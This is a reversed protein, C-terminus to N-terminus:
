YIIVSQSVGSSRLSNVSVLVANEATMFYREGFSQKRHGQNTWIMLFYGLKTM